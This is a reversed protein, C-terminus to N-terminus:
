SETLASRLCAQLTETEVADSELLTQLERTSLTEGAELSELLASPDYERIVMSLDVDEVFVGDRAGSRTIADVLLREARGRQEPRTIGVSYLLFALGDRVSGDLSDDTEEFIRCWEDDELYEFLISFDRISTRVREKIDRRRQYRQQKAHKGEYRKEGTLWRRDETTLMANRRSDMEENM